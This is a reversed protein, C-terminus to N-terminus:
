KKKFVINIKKSNGLFDHISKDDYDYYGNPLKIVKIIGKKVYSTLTVRSVGLIKLVDKSKM